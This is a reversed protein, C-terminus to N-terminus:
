QMCIIFSHESKLNMVALYKMFPTTTVINYNLMHFISKNGLSITGFSERRM